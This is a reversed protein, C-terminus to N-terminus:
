ETKPAVNAICALMGHRVKHGIHALRALDHREGLELVVADKQHDLRARLRAVKVGREGMLM